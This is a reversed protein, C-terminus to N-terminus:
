ENNANNKNPAFHFYQCAQCQKTEVFNIVYFLGRLEILRRGCVQQFLQEILIISEEIAFEILPEKTNILSTNLLLISNELISVLKSSVSTNLLQIHSNEVNYALQANLFSDYVFIKAQFVESLVINSFTSNQISISTSIEDGIFQYYLSHAFTASTINVSDSRSINGFLHMFSSNVIYIHSNESSFLTQNNVLSNIIRLECNKVSNFLRVNIVSDKVIITSNNCNFLTGLGNLTSNYLEFQQDILEFIQYNTSISSNRIIYSEFYQNLLQDTNNSIFNENEFNSSKIHEALIITLLM